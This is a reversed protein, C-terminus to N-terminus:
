SNGGAPAAPAAPPASPDAGPQGNPAAPQATAANPDFTYITVGIQGGLDPDFSTATGQSMTLALSNITSFRSMAELSRLVGYLESFEGELALNIGIPRVGAPLNTTTATGQTVGNLESGSALVNRRIEDLVAGIRATSPLARLLEDRQVELKAVEDRLGPLEASAARAATVQIQLTDLQQRALDIEAKKSSYFTYYWALGLLLVVVITLLFIDRGKLNQLGKLM